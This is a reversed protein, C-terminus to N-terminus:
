GITDSAHAVKFFDPADPDGLTQLKCLITEMYQIKSKM